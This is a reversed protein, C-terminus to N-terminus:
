VPLPQSAETDAPSAGSSAPAAPGRVQSLHHIALRVGESLNDGGLARGLRVTEDSLKVTRNKLGQGHKARRIPAISMVPCESKESM